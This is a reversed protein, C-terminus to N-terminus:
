SNRSIRGRSACNEEGNMAFPPLDRAETQRAIAAFEEIELSIREEDLNLLKQFKEWPLSVHGAPSPEPRKEEAAVDNQSLVILMFGALM